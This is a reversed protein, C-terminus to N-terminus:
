GADCCWEFLGLRLHGSVGSANCGPAGYLKERPAYERNFCSAFDEGWGGDPNQKGSYFSLSDRCKLVRLLSLINPPGLLFKVCKQIAKCTPKRGAILLGKWVSVNSFDRHRSCAVANAASQLWSMALSTPLVSLGIFQNDTKQM